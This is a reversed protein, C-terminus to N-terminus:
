FNQSHNVFASNNGAVNIKNLNVKQKIINIRPPSVNNNSEDKNKPSNRRKDQELKKIQGLQKGDSAGSLDRM